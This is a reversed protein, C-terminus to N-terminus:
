RALGQTADQVGPCEILEVLLSNPLMLFAVKRGGFAIAPKPRSVVVAHQASLSKLAPDISEIEYAQHYMKIDRNLWSLIPSSEDVPALLEMRPGPGVLFCGHIKQLPDTFHQGELEYGVLRLAKAEKQIDRCALGIHHFRFGTFPASKTREPNRDVASTAATQLQQSQIDLVAEARHHPTAM